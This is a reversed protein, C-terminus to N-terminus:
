SGPGPHATASQVGLAGLARRVPSRAMTNLVLGLSVPLLSLYLYRMFGIGSYGAILVNQPNGILTAASGM